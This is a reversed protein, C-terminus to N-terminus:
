DAFAFELPYEVQLNTKTPAALKLTGVQEIVCRELEPDPVDSRAVRVQAFKGTQSEAVFALMMTGQLKRNRKLAEEYCRTIPAQIAAMRAQVDSRTAEGFGSGACGAALATMVAFGGLLRRGSRKILNM